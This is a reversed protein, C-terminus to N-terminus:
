YKLLWARASSAGDRSLSIRLSPKYDANANADADADARLVEPWDGLPLHVRSHPWALSSIAKLTGLSAMM